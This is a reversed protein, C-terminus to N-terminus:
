CGFDEAYVVRDSKIHCLSVIRDCTRGGHFYESNVITRDYTYEKCNRIVIICFPLYFGAWDSKNSPLNIKYNM